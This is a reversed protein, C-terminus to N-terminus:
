YLLLRCGTVGYTVPVATIKFSAPLSETEAVTIITYRYGHSEATALSPRLLGADLLQSLSGYNGSGVTAAFTIEASNLTRLAARACRENDRIGWFACSDVYPDQGNAPQGAKDGGRMDGTTNIYFSRLGTKRYLRPTATAHYGAPTLAVEFLYGYKLGSALAQDILGSAALQALTGSSGNTASYTAQANSILLLARIPFVERHLFRPSSQPLVIQCSAFLLLSVFLVSKPLSRFKMYQPIAPNEKGSGTATTESGILSSSVGVSDYCAIVTM